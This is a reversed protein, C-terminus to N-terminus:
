PNRKLELAWARRIFDGRTQARSLDEDVLGMHRALEMWRLRANTGLPQELGAEHGPFARYYQGTINAGRLGPTEPAPALGHLGGATGWWQVAAFDPSGPPVDSAYITASGDAHLVRQLRSVSVRQVSTRGTVALHAAWGAAQGLSMWIPELRLACFGAHSASCAVPVLLNEVDRPVLVGFPVQYPVVPKYFEGAHKGGFRPGEHATGHCNPGYDGMVIADTRLIARADGPAHDTEKETFVHGGVMRRAERVYLQGPLHGGEEFEDRCWGWERAEERFPAPVAEDNQLFYLMGVNHRLHADFIRRRVAADGDPWEGNEGPMSLRVPARSVDNVDFKGNPLPPNQAKYLGGTSDCFVRKVRGDALLPLLEAFDERRYGPPAVPTVRNEPDRTMILRFNYGQVQGDAREPALAEGYESRAERGVRYKVGARAMLDGEYTGDVFVDARAVLPAGKPPLFRASLIRRGSVELEALRLDRVLRIRPQEEIMAEFVELNIRPEAHTGRFCGRAPPSDAGFKEAYRADVRQTFRLYAGTLSEFTRFDAHSLGNTVMGGIRRTPEVLLVNRGGRAAALAAAIGGPTAGYVVVEHKAVVPTFAHFDEDRTDAKEAGGGCAALVLLLCAGIRGATRTM